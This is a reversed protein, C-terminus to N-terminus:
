MTKEPDNASREDGHGGSALLLDKTHYERVSLLSATRTSMILISIYM